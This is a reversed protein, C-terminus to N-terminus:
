TAWLRPLVAPKQFVQPRLAAWVETLAGRVARTSAGLARAVVLRPTLRTMPADRMTSGLTDRLRDMTEDDFEPGAAWLCGFVHRGALGVPSGLLADSGAVRTREVWALEAGIRLRITQAYLGREFREGAAHRGLAVIDWGIMSAGEQLQIDITSRVNAADYVIAEQPLWELGGAVDLRVHQAGIRGNAKYWKAAGPTTVLGHAGADVDVAIDLADGGAIGGPPHLVVAHCPTDGEPYLAKQVRLPGRHQTSLFSRRGAARVRLALSAHWTATSGDFM